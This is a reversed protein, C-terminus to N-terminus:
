KLGILTQIEPTGVNGATVLQAGSNVHQEFPQGRLSAVATKLGEYGMKRPNQAVLAQIEGKQLAAILPPSTDFGVFKAKGALNNQRLALLMGFTTSENPTYIGDAERLQDIMNMASTQAEPATAGGYRNEVTVEIGPTEKMVELFGAERAGASAVGEAFRLMAVKGKGGLLRVMERGALRGGEKNDTAIFATFDKGVEGDLASDIIVVPIKKDMASQVPRRLAVPDLPALVIGGVGESVFQEVIAIQQARDSEKLPGKWIMNVGLEDAAKQAGAQVSKWYSHTTGMPIVAISIKDQGNGGAPTASHAGHGGKDCGGLTFAAALGLSLLFFVPRQNM